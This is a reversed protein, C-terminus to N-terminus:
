RWDGLVVNMLAMGAVAATDARMIRPGLSMPFVFPLGRLMEREADDFGGEPGILLASPGKPLRRLAVLPSDIQAAEDAFVLSRGDPWARLAEGLKM